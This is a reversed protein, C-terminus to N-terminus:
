NQLTRTSYPKTSISHMLATTGSMDSGDVPVKATKVLWEALAIYKPRAQPNMVTFSLIVNYIPIKTPGWKLDFTRSCRCGQHVARRCSIPLSIPLPCRRSARVFPRISGKSRDNSEHVRIHLFDTSNAVGGRVFCGVLSEITTTVESSTLPYVYLAYRYNM